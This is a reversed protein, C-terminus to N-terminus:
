DIARDPKWKREYHRFIRLRVQAARTPHRALMNIPSLSELFPYFLETALISPSSSVVKGQAHLLRRPWVVGPRFEAASSGVRLGKSAELKFAEMNGDTVRRLQAFYVTPDPGTCRTPM